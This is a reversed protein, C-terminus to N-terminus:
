IGIYVKSDNSRLQGANRVANYISITGKFNERKGEKMDDDKMCGTADAKPHKPHYHYGKQCKNDMM